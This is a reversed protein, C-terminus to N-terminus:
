RGSGFVDTLWDFTGDSYVVAINPSTEGDEPDTYLKYELNGIIGNIGTHILKMSMQANLFTLDYQGGTEEVQDMHNQIATPKMWGDVKLPAVLYYGDVKDVDEMTSAYTVDMNAGMLENSGNKMMVEAQYNTGSGNLKSTFSYPASNISADLSTPRGDNTYSASYNASLVTAGSIKHTVKATKPVNQEVPVLIYSGSQPDWQEEMVTITQFQLNEVTLEANNTHSAYNTQDAPFSMRMMTTSTQVLDFEETDFNFEFIGLEGLGGEKLTNTKLISRLAQPMNNKTHLLVDKVKSKMTEQGTLQVLFNLSSFAPLSMAENLNGTIQQSANRVEVKAKDPTLQEPDKEKDKNCATFLISVITLLLLLIRKM